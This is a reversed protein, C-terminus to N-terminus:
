VCLWRWETATSPWLQSPHCNKLFQKRCAQKDSVQGNKEYVDM